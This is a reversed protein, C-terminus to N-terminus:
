KAQARQFYEPYKLQLKRLSEPLAKPPLPSLSGTHDIRRGALTQALLQLDSAPWDIPVLPWLRATGDASATLVHRSDPSFEAHWVKDQHRLPPSLAQGTAADWVRATGDFSATVIQEGDPGFTAHNVGATHPLPPAAKAGTVANWLQATHDGSATLVLKGDPSFEAYWVQDRHQLPPTVKKGTRADWVQATSDYGATVIRQSDPSFRASFVPSNDANWHLLPPGLKVGTGVEWVQATMDYSATVVARGDRSFEAYRVIGQHKLPQGIAQGTRADWVQATWDASATVIRRGDHSFAAYLIAGQHKLPPILERGTDTEWIRATGDDSTTIVSRSDPAFTAFVVARNTGSVPHTLSGVHAFPLQDATHSTHLQPGIPKISVPDWLQATEDRGVTVIRRSDASITAHFVSGQHSMQPITSEAGGLDWVRIIPDNQAGATVLRRGDPSFAIRCHDNHAIPTIVARGTILDWVHVHGGGFGAIRRGDASLVAFSCGGEQRITPGVQAGTVADHTQILGNKWGTLVIQQSDPSFFCDGFHAWPIALLSQATVGDWIRIGDPARTFFRTADDNFMIAGGAHRIPSGIRKGTAADWLNAAGDAWRTRTLVRQGDPSLVGFTVPGNDHLLVPSVKQSTDVDWVQAENRSYTLVRKGDGSLTGVLWPNKKEQGLPQGIRRGSRLDWVQVEGAVGAQIDRLTTRVRRGDRSLRAYDVNARHELRQQIEGTVADCLLVTRGYGAILIQRGDPTFHAWGGYDAVKGEGLDPVIVQLLRPCQQLVANIRLRHQLREKPSLYRETGALAETLWALSSYPDSENIRQIGNNVQLQMALRKATGTQHQQYFYGATVLATLTAAALSLKTLAALRAELRRRSRVSKGSHLLALEAHFEEATQYRDQISEACAKLIIANLELLLEQESVNSLDRLGTMPEPYEKRDKGQSAEYLVKGLSYLDAQPSTPGEPPIFGETGVFSFAEEVEVVLGIDALKPVGQVFIINSPKIDRHILGHRHLHGLAFTLSLGLQVAEDAPLRSRQQIESRLTKPCYTGPEPNRTGLQEQGVSSPVRFASSPVGAADDALEMVYYFCGQADNRGVQLIDILGDNSRSVPEFRQIGRFEREYPQESSFSDRFVVKVARYTGLVNRALWVEGYAGQGICRILEHDPIVPLEERNRPQRPLRTRVPPSRISAPLDFRPLEM